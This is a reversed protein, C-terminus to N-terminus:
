CCVLRVSSMIESSLVGPYYNSTPPSLLACKSTPFARSLWPPWQRTSYLRAGNILEPSNNTRTPATAKLAQAARLAGWGKRIPAYNSWELGEAATVWRTPAHAADHARKKRNRSFPPSKRFISCLELPSKSGLTLFSNGRL